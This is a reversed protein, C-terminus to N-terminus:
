KLGDSASESAHYKQNVDARQLADHISPCIDETGVHLEFETQKMLQATTRKSRLFPISRGSAQLQDALDSITGLGTFEANESRM